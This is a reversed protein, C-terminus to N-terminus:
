FIDVGEAASVSRGEKAIEYGPAWALVASEFEDGQVEENGM